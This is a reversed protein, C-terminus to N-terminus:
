KFNPNRDKDKLFYASGLNTPNAYQFNKKGRFYEFSLIQNHM